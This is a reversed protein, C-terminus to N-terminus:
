IIPKIIAENPCATNLQVYERNQKSEYLYNCKPVHTYILNSIKSVGISKVVYTPCMSCKPSLVKSGSIQEPEEQTESTHSQGYCKERYFSLCLHDRLNKM